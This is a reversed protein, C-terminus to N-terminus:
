ILWVQVSRSFSFDNWWWLWWSADESSWSFEFYCPVGDFLQMNWDTSLPHSLLVSVNGDIIFFSNSAANLIFIVSSTSEPPQRLNQCYPSTATDNCEVDFLQKGIYSFFLVRHDHGNGGLWRCSFLTAGPPKQRGGWGERGGKTKMKWRGVREGREGKERLQMRNDFVVPAFPAINGRVFRCAWIVVEQRERLNLAISQQCSKSGCHFRLRQCKLGNLLCIGGCKACWTSQWEWWVTKVRHPRVCVCM